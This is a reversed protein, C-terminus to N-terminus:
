AKDPNLADLVEIKDNDSGTLVIVKHPIEPPLWFNKQSAMIAEHEDRTIDGRKSINQALLAESAHMVIFRLNIEHRCEAYLTLAGAPTLAIIGSQNKLVAKIEDLSCGWYFGNHHEHELFFFNALGERFEEDSLFFYSEVDASNRQMRTTFTKVRHIRGQYYNLAKQSWHTKGVGKPGVFVYLKHAGRIEALVDGFEDKLNDYYKEWEPDFDVFVRFEGERDLWHRTEKMVGEAIGLIGMDDCSDLIGIDFKLTRARGIRPNGESDEYGLADFPVTPAYGKKRMLVKAEEGRKRLRTPLACYIIKGRSGFNM